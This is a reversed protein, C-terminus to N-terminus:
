ARKGDEDVEKGEIDYTRLRILLYLKGDSYFRQEEWEGDDTQNTQMQRAENLTIIGRELPGLAPNGSERKKRRKNLEANVLNRPYGMLYVSWYADELSKDDLAEIEKVLREQKWDMAQQYAGYAFCGTVMLILLAAEFLFVDIISSM